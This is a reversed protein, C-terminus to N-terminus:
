LLLQTSLFRDLVSIARWHHRSLNCVLQVVVVVVVVVVLVIFREIANNDHRYNDSQIPDFSTITRRHGIYRIEPRRRCRFSVTGARTAIAYTRANNVVRDALM